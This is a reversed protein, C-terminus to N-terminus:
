IKPKKTVNNNSNKEMEEFKYYMKDELVKKVKKFSKGILQGVPKIKGQEYLAKLEKQLADIEKQFREEQESLKKELTTKNEIIKNMKLNVRSKLRGVENKEELVSKKEAQFEGKVKAEITKEM